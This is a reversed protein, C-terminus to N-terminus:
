SRIMGFRNERKFFRDGAKEAVRPKASKVAAKVRADIEYVFDLFNANRLPFPDVAFFFRISYM